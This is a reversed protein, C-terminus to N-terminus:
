KDYKNSIRELAKVFREKRDEEKKSVSNIIYCLYIGLGLACSLAYLGLILSVINDSTM